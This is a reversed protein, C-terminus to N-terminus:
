IDGKKELYEFLKEIIQFILHNYKNNDINEKAFNFLENVGLQIANSEKLYKNIKECMLLIDERKQSFFIRKHQNTCLGNNSCNECFNKEDDECYVCLPKERHDECYFYYKESRKEYDQELMRMFENIELNVGNNLKVFKEYFYLIKPIGNGFCENYMDFYSNLTNAFESNDNDQAFDFALDKM